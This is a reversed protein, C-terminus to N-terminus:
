MFGREVLWVGDNNRRVSLSIREEHEAYFVWVARNAGNGPYEILEGDDIQSFFVNAWLQRIAPTGIFEWPAEPPPLFQELTLGDLTDPHYLNFEHVNNGDIGAQIWIKMVSVAPADYLVSLDSTAIYAEYLAREDDTLGFLGTTPPIEFPFDPDAPDFYAPPYESRPENLDPSIHIEGGQDTIDQINPPQEPAPPDETCAALALLSACIAAVIMLRLIKM